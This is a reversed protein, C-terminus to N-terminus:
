HKLLRRMSTKLCQLITAIWHLVSKINLYKQDHRNSQKLIRTWVAIRTNSPIKVVQSLGIPDSQLTERLSVTKVFFFGTKM